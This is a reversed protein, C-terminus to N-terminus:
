KEMLWLYFLPFEEKWVWESHKGDARVVCVMRSNSIKRMESFAKETDPVMTEGEQSGCYFYIRSNVKAGRAKIDDFIKPGVWFAPSFIGAGGFVRPYKLLAYMSILGGMSSGAIFTNKKTKETRYSKDIFPKLTKALFDVYKDGEGKGYKEMDYPCYENIRQTGGHDVAVVIMEGSHNGLSDLTEDVGWEGAFSTLDDFVNQGDHMYLVPYRKGSTAYGPPLYIWVKRSRNLQPIFFATDVLHVNKGASSVRPKRAINDAWEEVMLDVMTDSSLKLSRNQIDTGGKKCEVKDWGGRTIKYEYIGDRLKTEIFYKGQGVSDNLRANENKQFRYNEDKPNWGNFSGAMYLNSDALNRAPFSSIVVRLSHQSYCILVIILLSLLSIAHKNM